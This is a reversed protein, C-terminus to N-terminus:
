EGVQWNLRRLQWFNGTLKDRRSKRHYFSLDAAIDMPYRLKDIQLKGAIPPGSRRTLQSIIPPENRDSM